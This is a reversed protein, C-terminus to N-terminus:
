INNDLLMIRRSVLFGAIHGNTILSGPWGLPPDLPPEPTREFGGGGGCVCM